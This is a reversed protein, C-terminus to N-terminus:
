GHPECGAADFHHRRYNKEYSINYRPNDTIDVDDKYWTVTPTPYGIVQCEFRQTDGASMVGVGVTGSM